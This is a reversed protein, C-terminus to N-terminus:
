GLKKKIIYDSNVFNLNDRLFSVLEPTLQKKAISIQNNLIIRIQNENSLPEGSIIKTGLAPSAISNFINDLREIPIRQITELFNWQDKFPMQNAPDIFCSNSNM